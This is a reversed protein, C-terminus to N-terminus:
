TYEDLTPGRERLKELIREHEEPSIRVGKRRTGHTSDHLTVEIKKVVLHGHVFGSQSPTKQAWMTGSAGTVSKLLWVGEVAASGKPFFLGTELDEMNSELDKTTGTVKMLRYAQNGDEDVAAGSVCAVYDGPLLDDLVAIDLVRQQFVADIDEICGLDEAEEEAGNSSDGDDHAEEPTAPEMEAWGAGHERLVLRTWPSVWSKNECGAFM